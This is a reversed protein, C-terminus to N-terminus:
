YMLAECPVQDSSPTTRNSTKKKERAAQFGSLFLFRVNRTRYVSTGGSVLRPPTAWNLKLSIRLGRFQRLNLPSFFASWAMSVRLEPSSKWWGTAGMLHHLCARLGKNGSAHLRIESPRLVRKASVALLNTDVSQSYISSSFQTSM